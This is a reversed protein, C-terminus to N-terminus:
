RMQMSVAILTWVIAVLQALNVAIAAVHMRRFRAIAPTGDVVIREGLAVMRPLITRRMAAALLVLAAAGAAFAVRGAFAYAIATAGAIVAVTAYYVGFFRRVFWADMNTDHRLVLLPVSGMFFYATVVILLVTCVLALALTPTM